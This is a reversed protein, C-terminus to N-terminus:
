GGGNQAALVSGSEATMLAACLLLALMNRVRSKM